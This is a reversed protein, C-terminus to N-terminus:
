IFLNGVQFVSFAVLWALGTSFFIMFLTWKISQSERHFVAIVAVCPFYILVFLMFGIAVLPTFVPEGKKEGQTYTQNQIKTILSETNDEDDIDAMYLVGMTSVVVEKAVAGTLLSIGIKWDFGLPKIVPEIFKGLQGIYSQEQKESRKATELEKIENQLQIIKEQNQIQEKQEELLAIKADYNKSYSVDLPFYGLAWICLSAILIVGAIKKIYQEAKMWMHRFTAKITPMRYPPLEMVFPVEKISLVTKKLVLAVLISLLIGTLYILFIVNGANKPFFAGTLLIYVPLRASCSMFPIIIMTLLRDAKNKITRTAMIAPVNCGFGMILPIFSKGHLGIQHMLKDMIFAVRAMYGTNEMFSIFLFLIIINPLFVIVGGVGAIVGDVLLNQMWNDPMVSSIFNGLLVVGNEIWEMPYAGLKFTTQFMVWLFLLFLPFGFYKHTLWHDIKDTRDEQNTEKKAPKYTEKLAGSIMGYRADTILTETDEKHLNEIRSTEKETLSIIAEYNPLQKLDKHIEEDKELLKVAYFRSSYMDTASKNEWILEQIKKIAIEPEKGYNIHVHRYTNDNDEYVEIIKNFLPKIGKGKAAVTPIVPIGILKGLFDYDLVDGKKILEDYMNLAIVVKIDMDILQTTLFLNRELNSADVVNVVVDPFTKFVHTRVYLEEPSYASLSYTGPLDTINFKYGSHKFHAHKLDVTVGAYNGVHEKAGSAFNFLTTKGSNPNGVFAVDIIKGKVHATRRLIEDAFFGKYEEINVFEKADDETVTEILKAESRRLSIFYDLIKYEVPDQLPANKIVTVKKGRVFGMDTIRKRFAGRGKVKTIVGREGTKLEDLTM